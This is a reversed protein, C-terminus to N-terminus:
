PGPLLWSWDAFRELRQLQAPDMFSDHVAQDFAFLVQPRTTSMRSRGGTM